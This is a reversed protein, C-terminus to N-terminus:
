RLAHHGSTQGTFSAVASTTARGSSSRPRCRWTAAAASHAPSDGAPRVMSETRQQELLGVLSDIESHPLDSERTNSILHDLHEVTASPRPKQDILTEVAMMLLMLRADPYTTSFSASYLDYALARDSMTVDRQDAANVAALFHSPFRGGFGEHRLRAFLPPPESEFVTTGLRDNVVKTGAKDELTSLGAQTFFSLPALRGFDAGIRIRALAKEIVGRWREAAAEAAEQSGYSKGSVQLEQTANIPEGLKAAALRVVEADSNPDTLEMVTNHSDIRVRGVRFRVRFGFTM